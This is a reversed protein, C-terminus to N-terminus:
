YWTPLPLKNMNLMGRLCTTSDRVELLRDSVFISECFSQFETNASIVRQKM